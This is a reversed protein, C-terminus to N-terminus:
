PSTSGESGFFAIMASMAKAGFFAAPMTSYEVSM